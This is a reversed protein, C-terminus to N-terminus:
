IELLLIKYAVKDKGGLNWIEAKQNLYLSLFQNAQSKLLSAPYYDPSAWLLESSLM